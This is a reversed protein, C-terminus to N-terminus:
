HCRYNIDGRELMANFRIREAIPLRNAFQTPSTIFAGNNGDSMVKDGDTVTTNSVPSSYSDLGFSASGDFLDNDTLLKGGGIIRKGRERKRKPAETTDDASEPKKEEIEEVPRSSTESAPTSPNIVNALTNLEKRLLSKDKIQYNKGLVYKMIFEIIKDFLSTKTEGADSVEVSNAFDMFNPNTITEVLFEELRNLKMHEAHDYAGNRYVDCWRKIYQYKPNTPDAAYAADFKEIFINYIDELSTKTILSSSAIIAERSANDNNSIINHLREHILKMIAERKTVQNGSLISLMMDGVVVRGAKLRATAYTPRGTSDTRLVKRTRNYRSSGKSATEAVNGKFTVEGSPTVEADNYDEDYIIDSPLLDEVLERFDPNDFLSAPFLSRAIAMGKHPEDGELIDKFHNFETVSSYQAMRIVQKKETPTVEPRVTTTGDIRIHVNKNNRQNRGRPEFNSGDKQMTNVKILNNSILFDQYSDYEKRYGKSKVLGTDTAPIDVVFKGNEFKFFSDDSNFSTLGDDYRLGNKSIHFSTNTQLLESLVKELADRDAKNLTNSINKSSQAIVKGSADTLKFGVGTRRQGKTKLTLYRVEGSPTKFYIYTNTFGAPDIQQTKVRILGNNGQLIGISKGGAGFCETLWKNLMTVGENSGQAYRAIAIRLYGGLAGIMDKVDQNNRLEPDSIRTGVAKVPVFGNQGEIMAFTSGPSMHSMVIPAHHSMIIESPNQPNAIGIHVKDPEAFADRAYSLSGYDKIVNENTARVLDGDNTWTVETEVQNGQESLYLAANYNEYRKIFWDELNSLITNKREEINTATVGQTYNWVNYLSRFLRGYDVDGSSSVYVKRNAFTNENKSEEVMQKILPNKSLAEIATKRYTPDVQVKILLDRIAKYDPENSTFVEAFFDKVWSDVIDGNPTFKEIFGDAFWITNGTGIRKPVSMSGIPISNSDVISIFKGNTPIIRVKDGKKLNNIAKISEQSVFERNDLMGMIDIRYSGSIVVPEDNAEQPTTYTNNALDDKDLIVYKDQHSMLYGRIVNFVSQADTNFVPTAVQECFQMLDGVRVVPKGDVKPTLLTAVYDEVLKDFSQTFVGDYNPHEVSMDVFKAAMVVKAASAEVASDAAAAEKALEIADEMFYDVATSVVDADLTAPVKAMIKAKVAAPDFRDKLIEAASNLGQMAFAVEQKNEEDDVIEQPSSNVIIPPIPSNSDQGGTSSMTSQKIRILENINRNLAEKNNVNISGLTTRITNEDNQLIFAALELQNLNDELVGIQALNGRIAEESGNQGAFQARVNNTDIKLSDLQKRTDDILNLINNLDNNQIYNRVGGIIKAPRSISKIIANTVSDDSKNELTNESDLGLEGREALYWKGTSDKKIVPNKTVVWDNNTDTIDFDPTAFIDTLVDKTIASKDAKDYLLEKSEADIDRSDIADADNSKNVRLGSTTDIKFKETTTGGTTGGTTGSAAPAPGSTPASSKRKTKAKAVKRDVERNLNIMGAIYKYIYDNADQTFNFINLASLLEASEKDNLTANALREATEKDGNYYANIIEEIQNFNDRHNAYLTNIVDSAAEIAKLRAENNQNHFFDVRNAIEDTTTAIRSREDVIQQQLESMDNYLNFLRKSTNILGKKGGTRENYRKIINKAEEISTDLVDESSSFENTGFEKEYANVIAKDTRSAFSDSFTYQGNELRTRDAYRLAYLINGLKPTKDKGRLENLISKQRRKIDELMIQKQMPSVTADKKIKRKDAELTAYLQARRAINIMEKAERIDAAIRQGEESNPDISGYLAQMSEVEIQEATKLRRNLDEINLLHDTNEKAILQIYDLSVPTKGSKNLETAQEKVHTVQQRYLNVAKEMDSITENIFADAEDAKVVENDIMYKKFADSKVYETLMDYTGSTAADLAIGARYNQILKATAMRKQAEVDGEFKPKLKTVKDEPAFINIGDKNIKKLDEALQNARINRMRIAAIAAQDEPTELYTIFDDVERGEKTEENTAREKAAKSAKHALKAKQIASGGGEFVIGGLFGWFASEYLQPNKLYDKFRSDFSSPKEQELLVRGYSLGEEQSIYNVAEEIGETSEALADKAWDKSHNKIYDWYASTKSKAAANDVAEGVGKGLNRISEQQATRAAASDVSKVFGLNKGINKLSYLQIVDFVVNGLDGVFTRNAARNAVTKAATDKDPISGDENQLEPHRAIYQAYQTDNMKSFVDNAQAYMDTYTGRAEQYNEVTRMVAANAFMELGANARAIMESDNLLNIGSAKGLAAMAKRTGRGLKSAKAAWSMAKAGAMGPIMLTLSSMISPMNSMWWGFNALGGNGINVDNGVYVPAVNQNFSDQWEQLKASVPNSYDNNSEFLPALMADAMDSFAKVTGLGVESVVTQALANAAKSWNSQSEALIDELTNNQQAKLLEVNESLGISTYKDSDGLPNLEYGVGTERSTYDGALGSMDLARDNQINDEILNSDDSENKRVPNLQRAINLLDM